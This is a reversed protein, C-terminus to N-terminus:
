KALLTALRWRAAGDTLGHAEFRVRRREEHIPLTVVRGKKGRLWKGFRSADIAGRNGAVAMLTDRLDPNAYDQLESGPMTTTNACTPSNSSHRQPLM